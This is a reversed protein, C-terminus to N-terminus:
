CLDFEEKLGNSLKALSGILLLPHGQSSVRFFARVSPVPPHCKSHDGSLLPQYSNQYLLPCLM